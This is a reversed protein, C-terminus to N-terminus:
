QASRRGSTRDTRELWPAPERSRPAASPGRWTPLRAEFPRQPLYSASHGGLEAHARGTREAADRPRRPMRKWPHGLRNPPQVVVAQDGGRPRREGTAVSPEHGEGVFRRNRARRSAEHREGDQGTRRRRRIMERLILTIRLITRALAVISGDHPEPADAYSGSAVM